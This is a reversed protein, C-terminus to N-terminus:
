FTDIYLTYRDVKNTEPDTVITLWGDAGFEKNWDPCTPPLIHTHLDIKRPLM